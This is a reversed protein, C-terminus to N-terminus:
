WMAAFSLAAVLFAVGVVAFYSKQNKSETKETLLIKEFIVYVAVVLSLALLFIMLYIFIPGSITIQHASMKSGGNILAQESLTSQVM